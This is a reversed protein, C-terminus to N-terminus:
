AALKGLNTFLVRGLEEDCGSSGSETFDHFLNTSTLGQYMDKEECSRLSMYCGKCLQDKISMRRM